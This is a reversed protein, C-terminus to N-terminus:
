DGVRNLNDDYTGMRTRKSSLAEPTRAMKWLGGTHSTRDQTIYVKGDTFVAQKQSLDRTRKFGLRKAMDTAQSTTLPNSSRGPLRAAGSEGRAKVGALADALLGKGPATRTARATRTSKSASILARLGRTASAASAAGPPGLPIMAFMVQGLIGGFSDPDGGQLENIWDALRTGFDFTFDQGTRRAVAQGMM